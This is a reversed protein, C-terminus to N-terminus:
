LSVSNLEAMKLLSTESVVDCTWPGVFKRSCIKIGGDMGTYLNKDAICDSILQVSYM